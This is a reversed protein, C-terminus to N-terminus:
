NLERYRLDYLSFLFIIVMLSDVAVCTSCFMKLIFAQILLFYIAGAVGLITAALYLRKFKEHELSLLFLILLISFSIVGLTSLKIGLFNGYPSNQVGECNFGPLCLNNGSHSTYVLLISFIIELVIFVFILKKATEM